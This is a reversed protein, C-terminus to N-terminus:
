TNFKKPNLYTSKNKNENKTQQNICNLFVAAKVTNNLYDINNFENVKIKTSIESKKIYM